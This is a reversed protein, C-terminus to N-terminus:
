KQVLVQNLFLRIRALVQVSGTMAPTPWHGGGRLYGIQDPPTPVSEGEEWAPRWKYIFCNIFPVM